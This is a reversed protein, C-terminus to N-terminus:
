FPTGAAERTPRPVRHNADRHHASLTRHTNATTRVQPRSSDATLRTAPTLPIAPTPHYQADAGPPPEPRPHYTHGLPSQVAHTGDPHTTWWWHAQHKARHHRRCLTLLNCSCTTGGLRHETTHDTDCRTAPRTCGPHRCTRDRARILEKQRRTPRYSRPQHFVVQGYRTVTTCYDFDTDAMAIIEALVEASVVGFGVVEGPIAIAAEAPVPDGRDAEAPVSHGHDAEAPVPDGRDAEATVTKAADTDDPAAQDPTAENPTPHHLGLQTALTLWTHLPAVLEVNPKIGHTHLHRGQLLDLVVDAQIQGLTRDDDGTDHLTKALDGVFAKAAAVQAIPLHSGAIMATGAGDPGFRVQRERQAQRRREEAGAPDLRIVKARLRRAIQQRTLEGAAPLIFAEAQGALEDSLVCTEEAIEKAKALSIRGAALAARTDPLRHSLHYAFSLERDACWPTLTLAAGVEASAFETFHETLEAPSDPMCEPSRAVAAMAEYMGAACWSSQRQWAQMVVVRGYGNLSAVDIGALVAALQPGPPLQALSEVGSM